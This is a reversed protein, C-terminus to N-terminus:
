NLIVVNGSGFIDELWTKAWGQFVVYSFNQPTTTVQLEASVLLTKDVLNNVPIINAYGSDRFSESVWWSLMCPMKSDSIKEPFTAFSVVSGNSVNRGDSTLVNTNIKFFLTPLTQSFSTFSILILFITLARKM